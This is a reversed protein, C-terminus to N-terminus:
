SVKITLNYADLVWQLAANTQEGNEERPWITYSGSGKAQKFATDSADVVVQRSSSFVRGDDALWYWNFPNYFAM